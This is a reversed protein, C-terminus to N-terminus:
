RALTGVWERANMLVVDKAASRLATPTDFQRFRYIMMGESLKKYFAEESEYGIARAPVGPLYPRLLGDFMRDQASISGALKQRAQESDEDYLETALSQAATGMSDARERITEVAHTHKSDRAELGYSIARLFDETSEFFVATAVDVPSTGQELEAFLASEPM